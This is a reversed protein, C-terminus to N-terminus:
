GYACICGNIGAFCKEVIQLLSTNFIDQSTAQDNFVYDFSFTENSKKLIVSNDKVSCLSEQEYPKLRLGVLVNEVTENIKKKSSVESNM